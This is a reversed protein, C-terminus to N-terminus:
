SDLSVFHYFSLLLLVISLHRYLVRYRTVENRRELLIFLSFIICALHLARLHHNELLESAKKVYFPMNQLRM